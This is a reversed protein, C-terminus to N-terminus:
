ALLLVERKRMLEFNELERIRSLNKIPFLNTLNPVQTAQHAKRIIITLELVLPADM